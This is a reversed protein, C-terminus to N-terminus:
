FITLIIFAVKSVMVNLIIGDAKLKQSLIKNSRNIAETINKLAIFIALDKLKRYFLLNTQSRQIQGILDEGVRKVSSFFPSIESNNQFLLIFSM